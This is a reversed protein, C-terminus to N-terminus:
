RWLKSACLATVIHRCFEDVSIQAGSSPDQDPPTSPGRKLFTELNALNPRTALIADYCEFSTSTPLRFHKSVIRFRFRNQHLDHPIAAVSTLPEDSPHSCLHALSLNSTLYNILMIKNRLLFIQSHAHSQPAGTRKQSESEVLIILCAMNNPSGDIYNYDATLISFNKSLLQTREDKWRHHHRNWIKLILQM